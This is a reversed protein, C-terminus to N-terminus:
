RTIQNTQNMQNYFLYAEAWEFKKFELWKVENFQALYSPLQKAAPPQLISTRPESIFSRAELKWVEFM